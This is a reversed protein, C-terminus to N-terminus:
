EEHYLGYKDRLNRIVERAPRGTDGAEMDAIAERVAAVSADLERASPNGARWTLLLEEPSMKRGGNDLQATLFEHFAEAETTTRTRMAEAYWLSTQATLRVACFFGCSVDQPQRYGHSTEAWM